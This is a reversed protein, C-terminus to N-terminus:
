RSFQWRRTWRLGAELLRISLPPRLATRLIPTVYRRMDAEYAAVAEILSLKGDAAETLKGALVQADSLALNAGANLTPLTAHVADGILTLRRAPWEPPPQMTQLATVSCSAPDVHEVLRRLGPHWKESLHECLIAKLAPGDANFLAEDPRPRSGLGGIQAGIMMYDAVPDIHPHLSAAGSEAIAQAVTRRPRYCGLHFFARGPESIAAGSEAVIDPVGRLLDPTLPTRAYITRAGTDVPNAHPLLERRVASHLGDAGVLLDGRVRSGDSLEVVVHDHMEHCRTLGRGFHVVGDLGTSLLQALQRHHIATHALTSTDDADPSKRAGLEHGGPDLIVAHRRRPTRHSLLQYLRYLPEPLSQALAEGGHRDIQLRYDCATPATATEFLSCRVGARTLRQALCLGSLGGGAILVRIDCTGM